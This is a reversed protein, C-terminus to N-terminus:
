LSNRSFVAEVAVFIYFLQNEIQNRATNAVAAPAIFLEATGDFVLLADFARSGYRTFGTYFIRWDVLLIAHVQPQTIHKIIGCSSFCNFIVAAYVSDIRVIRIFIQVFAAILVFRKEKNFIVFAFVFIYRLFIQVSSGIGFDDGGFLEFGSGSM